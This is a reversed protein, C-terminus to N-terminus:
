KEAINLRVKDILQKSDTVINQVDGKTISIDFENRLHIIIRNMSLATDHMMIDRLALVLLARHIDEKDMSAMVNVDDYVNKERVVLYRNYLWKPPKPFKIIQWFNPHKKLKQEVKSVTTFENYSGIKSFDKVRWSDMSPNKDKVFLAGRGRAFLDAWYNVYSELYTKELKVIKLPFCLIFFLHKTRVQALKKKLAKNEKKSWDESSNHVIVTEAIYNQNDEVNIIDFVEVKEKKTISKIKLINM